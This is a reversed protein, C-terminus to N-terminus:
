DEITLVAKMLTVEASSVEYTTSWGDVGSGGYILSNEGEGEKVKICIYGDGDKYVDGISLDEFTMSNKNRRELKMM